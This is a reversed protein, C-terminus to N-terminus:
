ILVKEKLYKHINAVRGYLVVLIVGLINKECPLSM